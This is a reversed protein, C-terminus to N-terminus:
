WGRHKRQHRQNASLFRQGGTYFEGTTTYRDVAAGNTVSNGDTEFGEAFVVSLLVRPELAELGCYNQQKARKRRRLSM